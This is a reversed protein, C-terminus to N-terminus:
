IQSNIVKVKNPMLNKSFDRLNSKVVEFTIPLFGQFPYFVAEGGGGGGGM